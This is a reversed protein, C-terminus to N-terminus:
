RRISGRWVMQSALTVTQPTDNPAESLYNVAAESIDEVPQRFTTLSYSEWAAQEIDDFGIVSVDEPVRLKFRQRAADIVGCAILDTACFIGDPREPATLLQTGVDLGTGYSTMGSAAELIPVGAKEAMGRFGQGRDELSPTGARSSAFALRKCGAASLSAFAQRGAAADDLRIRLTGPREENRNIFVLRMGNRLCMEALSSDPMGSLIIAAETRYSIAQRLAQAVSEDSRDTNILLGVKGAAQLKNSLAALLSSRYPTQIEAAILAVLGTRSTLLGRALNNVQYGLKEAAAYVKARTEASVSAGPTFARSVATRSVGALEAVDKASVQQRIM